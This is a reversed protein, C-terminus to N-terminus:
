EIISNTYSVIVKGSPLCNLVKILQTSLKKTDIGYRLATLLLDDFSPGNYIRYPIIQNATNKVELDFIPAKNPFLTEVIQIRAFKKM